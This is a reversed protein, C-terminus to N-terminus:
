QLYKFEFDADFLSTLASVMASEGIYSVSVNPTGIIPTISHVTHKGRFVLIRGDRPIPNGHKALINGIAFIEDACLRRDYDFSIM